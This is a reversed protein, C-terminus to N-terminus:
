GTRALARDGDLHALRPAVEDMLLTMSRAIKEPAAMPLGAFVLLMGFGGSAHYYDEILRAM